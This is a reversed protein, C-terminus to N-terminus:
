ANIARLASLIPEIKKRHEPPILLASLPSNKILPMQRLISQSGSDASEKHIAHALVDSLNGSFGNQDVHEIYQLFAHAVTITFEDIEAAGTDACCKTSVMSRCGFPRIHYVPCANETLLPCPGWSPDITEDPPDDGSICIAAMRNTTIEPIFRKRKQQHNLKKLM